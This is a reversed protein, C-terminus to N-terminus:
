QQPVVRNNGQEGQAITLLQEGSWWQNIYLSFRSAPLNPLAAPCAHCLLCAPSTILSLLLCSLCSLCALLSLCPLCALLCPNPYASLSWLLAPDPLAPLALVPCALCALCAPYVFAPLAPLDPLPLPPSAPSFMLLCQLYRYVDWTLLMYTTSHVMFLLPKLLIAQGYCWIVSPDTLISSAMSRSSQPKFLSYPVSYYNRQNSRKLKNVGIKSGAGCEELDLDLDLNRTYTCIDTDLSHVLLSCYKYYQKVM